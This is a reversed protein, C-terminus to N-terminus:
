FCSEVSWKSDSKICQGAKSNAYLQLQVEAPRIGDQNNSDSFSVNVPIDMKEVEYTLTATLVGDTATTYTAEYGNPAAVVKVTYAVAKGAVYKDLDAFTHKWSNNANLIIEDGLAKGDAYLQLELKPSRKGDQNDADEWLISVEFDKTTIPQPNESLDSSLTEGPTPTPKPIDTADM